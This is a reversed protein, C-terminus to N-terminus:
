PAVQRINELDELYQPFKLRFTYFSSFLNQFAIACDSGCPIVHSDIVVNFSIPFEISGYILMFPQRLYSARTTHPILDELSFNEYYFLLFLLADLRIVM